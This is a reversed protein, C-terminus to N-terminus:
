LVLRKWDLRGHDGFNVLLGVKMGTCNLYNLLQADERSTLQEM